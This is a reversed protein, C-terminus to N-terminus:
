YSIVYSALVVKVILLVVTLYQKVGHTSTHSLTHTYIYM